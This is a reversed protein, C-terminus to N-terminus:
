ATCPHNQLAQIAFIAALDAHLFREVVDVIHALHQEAGEARQVNRLLLQAEVVRVHAKAIDHVYTPVAVSRCADLSMPCGHEFCKQLMHGHLTMSVPAAALSQCM